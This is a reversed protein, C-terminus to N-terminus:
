SLVLLQSKSEEFILHRSRRRSPSRLLVSRQRRPPSPELFAAAPDGTADYPRRGARRVVNVRSLQRGLPSNYGSALGRARKPEPPPRARQGCFQLPAHLRRTRLRRHDSRLCWLNGPSTATWTRKLTMLDHAASEALLRLPLAIDCGHRPCRHSVYLVILVEPSRVHWHPEISQEAILTCSARFMKALRKLM